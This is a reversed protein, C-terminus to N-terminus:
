TISFEHQSWDKHLPHPLTSPVPAYFCPFDEMDNRVANDKLKLLKFVFFALVRSVEKAPEIPIIPMASINDREVPTFLYM